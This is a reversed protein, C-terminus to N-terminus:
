RLHGREHARDILRRAVQWLAESSDRIGIKQELVQERTIGRERWGKGDCATTQVLPLLADIAKAYRAEPTERAEFENWLALLEQGQREPLLGYLREAAAREKSEQESRAELDYLYTDGAQVEVVDHILLMLVVRAVDVLEDCHEACLAAMLAAHWSHEASNEVRSGDALYNRREILKLADIVEIFELQARLADNMLYRDLYDV